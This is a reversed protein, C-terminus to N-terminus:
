IKIKLVSGTAESIYIHEKGLFVKISVDLSSNNDEENEKSM